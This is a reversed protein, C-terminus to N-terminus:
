VLNAAEAAVEIVFSRSLAIVFLRSLATVFLRSLLLGVLCVGNTQIIRFRRVGCSPARLVRAAKAVHLTFRM